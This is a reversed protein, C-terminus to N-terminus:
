VALYRFDLVENILKFDKENKTVLIAGIDRVSVAILIDALLNRIRLSDIKKDRRLKLMVDGTAYWQKESVSIVTFNKKIQEILKQEKKDFSGSLLEMLVIASFTIHYYKNLNIFIDQVTDKRFHEILFSTDLVAKQRM